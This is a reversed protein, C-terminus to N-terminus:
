LASKVLELIEEKDYGLDKMERVFLSICGAAMESRLGGFVEPDDCLYTGLGKRTFALGSAEMERYIRAATNPNIQYLDALARVSPLKQGATFQGSAAKKCIDDIVQRYIHSNADLIM